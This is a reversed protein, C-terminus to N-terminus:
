VSDAGTEEMEVRLDYYAEYAELTQDLQGCSKSMERVAGLMKTICRGAKSQTGKLREIEARMQDMEAERQKVLENKRARCKM